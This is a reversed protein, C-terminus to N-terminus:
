TIGAGVLKAFFVTPAVGAHKVVLRAFVGVREISFAFTYYAQGTVPNTLQPAGGSTPYHADQDTSPATAISQEVVCGNAALPQNAAVIGTLRRHASVDVWNSRWVNAPFAPATLQSVLTNGNADANFTATQVM